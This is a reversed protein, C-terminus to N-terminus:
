EYALVERVSLQSARHAPLYTALIALLIAGVLWMAVGEIPFDYLLPARILAIGVRDSLIRSLPMALVSGTAWSVVGIFIGEILFVMLVSFDSAGVARMVGIERARELVNMSMAGSLGMASVGAVLAAMVFLFVLIISFQESLSRTAQQTTRITSVDHDAAKFATELDQAVRDQQTPDDLVIALVSAQGADHAAYAAYYPYNIYAMAGALVSRVIGVVKYEKDESNIRLTITDGVKIDTEDRIVDTNIVVANADQPLLWRGETLTPNLLKTDAPPAFVQISGSETDDARIRRAINFGWSEVHEVNKVGLAIQEIAQQRYPRSLRAELDYQRYAQTNALTNLVSARVSYVGIFAGGGLTLTILTFALRSKARVSNRLALLITSPLGRVQHVINDILHEGFGYVKSSQTYIAERVNITVGNIVPLFAAGLPVLLGFIIELILVQPQIPSSVIEFNVIGAAYNSLGWAGWAGLPIGIALALLGFLTIMVIYVVFLQRSVAGVSKMIGIQKIQQGLLANITNVVLFGSMLLAMYSLASLVLLLPEISDAAPHKGPTPVFTSFVVRGSNEIKHRVKEAVREIHEQDNAKEKVTFELTTFNRDLGLWVMTERDIYGSAINTFQAPAQLLHYTTGAIPLQRRKGDPMEITLTDGIKAKLLVLSQREILIQKEPPPWAGSISFIKDVHIDTFDRAAFLNMDLWKDPGVNVRVTLSRRADADKIDPMARITDLLDEDFPSTGIIAAPPAITSYVANLDSSLIVQTTNITGIAFVGAAISFVVLLTRTKNSWLDRLVKIWRPALFTM